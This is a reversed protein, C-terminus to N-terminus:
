EGKSLELARRFKSKPESELSFRQALEQAFCMLAAESGSKLEAEVEWFPLARGSGTLVGRDLALEIEADRYTLSKAIRTFRAGCVTVLGPKTLAILEAPGGLRCLVPIASLIDDCETEWENRGQKAPTKLTCVSKGNELRKRLTYRLASLAVDPTDYYETQMQLQVGPQPFAAEIAQLCAEDTKFKLELEVGM